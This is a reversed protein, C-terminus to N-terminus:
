GMGQMIRAKVHPRKIDMADEQVGNFLRVREDFRLAMTKAYELRLHRKKHVAVAYAEGLDKGVGDVICRLVGGPAADGQPHHAALGANFHRDLVVPRADDRGQLRM